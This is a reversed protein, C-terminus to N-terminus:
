LSAKLILASKARDEYVKIVHLSDASGGRPMPLVRKPSYKQTWLRM